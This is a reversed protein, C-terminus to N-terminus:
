FCTITIRGSFAIQLKVPFAFRINCIRSQEESLQLFVNRAEFSKGSSVLEVGEVGSYSLRVNQGRRNLAEIVYDGGGANQVYLLEVEYIMENM